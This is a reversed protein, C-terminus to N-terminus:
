VPEPELLRGRFDVKAGEALALEKSVFAEQTDSLERKSDRAELRKAQEQERSKQLARHKAMGDQYVKTGYAYPLRGRLKRELQIKEDSLVQVTESGDALTVKRGVGPEPATRKSLAHKRQEPTPAANLNRKSGSLNSYLAIKLKETAM